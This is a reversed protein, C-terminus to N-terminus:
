EVKNIQFTLGLQFAYDINADIVSHDWGEMYLTMSLSAIALDDDSTSTLVSGQSLVGGKEQPYVSNTGYYEAKPLDLNGYDGQWGKNGGKHKALFTSHESSNTKNIDDLENEELVTTPKEEVMGYLYEKGTNNYYNDIQYDYYGDNDLDLLGATTTAGDERSTPNFLIKTDARGSATNKNGEFYLRLANGASGSVSESANMLWIDQNKLVENSSTIVRFAFDIKSYSDNTAKGQDYELKSPNKYLTFTDGHSYKRTTCPILTAKDGQMLHTPDVVSLYNRIDKEGLGTGAKPFWYTTTDTKIVEAFTEDADNNLYYYQTDEDSTKSDLTYKTDFSDVLSLNSDTQLGIQLQATSYVSTGGYSISTHTAYAYWALTGSIAGAFATITIASLLAATFRWKM